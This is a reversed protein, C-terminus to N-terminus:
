TRIFVVDAGSIIIFIFSFEMLDALKPNYDMLGEMCVALVFQTPVAPSFTVVMNRFGGGGLSLAVALIQPPIAGM